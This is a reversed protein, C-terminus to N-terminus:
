NATWDKANEPMYDNTFLNSLDAPQEIVKGELLASQLGEWDAPDMWGFGHEAVDPSGILKMSIGLAQEMFARDEEPNAKMMVDLTMAPDAAADIWGKVSAKLFRRIADGNEEAWEANAV